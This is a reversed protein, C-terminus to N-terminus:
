FDEPAGEAFIAALKLDFNHVIMMLKAIVVSPLSILFEYRENFRAEEETDDKGGIEFKTDGFRVLSAAVNYRAIVENIGVPYSPSEAELCRQARLSDGYKRTSITVSLKGIKVTEEYYRNALVKEMITRAEEKSVGVQALGEEYEEEPSFKGVSDKKEEEKEKEEKRPLRTKNEPPTDKFQGILPTGGTENDTM